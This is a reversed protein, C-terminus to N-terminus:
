GRPEARCRSQRGLFGKWGVRRDAWAQTLLHLHHRIIAQDANLRQAVGAVNILPEPAELLKGLIAEMLMQDRKMAKVTFFSAM